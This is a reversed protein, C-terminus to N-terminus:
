FAAIRQVAWFAALGGIAYRPIRWAWAVRPVPLRAMVPRMLALGAFVLAIFLLQGIAVGGNFFLPSPARPAPWRSARSLRRRARITAATSGASEVTVADM